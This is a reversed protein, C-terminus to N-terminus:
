MRETCTISSKWERTRVSVSRTRMRYTRSHLAARMPVRAVRSCQAKWKQKDKTLSCRRNWEDLTAEPCLDSKRWMAFKNIKASRELLEAETM